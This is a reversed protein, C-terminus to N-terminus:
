LHSLRRHVPFGQAQHRRNLNEGKADDGFDAQLGSVTAIELKQFASIVATENVGFAGL